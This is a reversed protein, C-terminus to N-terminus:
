GKSGSGTPAAPSADGVADGSPGAGPTGKKSEEIRALEEMWTGITLFKYVNEWVTADHDVLPATTGPTLKKFEEWYLQRIIEWGGINTNIDMSRLMASAARGEQTKLLPIVDFMGSAVAKEAPSLDLGLLVAVVWLRPDVGKSRLTQPMIEGFSNLAQPTTPDMIGRDWFESVVKVFDKYDRHAYGQPDHGCNWATLLAQNANKPRNNENLRELFAKDNPDGQANDAAEKNRKWTERIEADTQAGSVNQQPYDPM